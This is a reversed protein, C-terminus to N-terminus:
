RRIRSQFPPILHAYLLFGGLHIVKYIQTKFSKMNTSLTNALTKCLRSFQRDTLLLKHPVKIENKSNDNVFSSCNLTRKTRNEIGSKLKNLQSNSLKVFM